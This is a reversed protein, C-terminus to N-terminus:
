KVLDLRNNLSDIETQPVDIIFKRITDDPQVTHAWSKTQKYFSILKKIEAERKVKKLQYLFVVSLIAIFIYIIM